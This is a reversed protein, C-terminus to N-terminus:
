LKDITIFPPLSGTRQSPDSLYEGCESCYGRWMMHGGCPTREGEPHESDMPRTVHTYRVLPSHFLDKM